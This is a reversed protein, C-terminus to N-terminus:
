QDDDSEIVRASRKKRRPSSGPEDDDSPVIEHYENNSKLSKSTQGEMLIEVDPDEDSLFRIAATELVDDEAPPPMFEDESSLLEEVAEDDIFNADEEDMEDEPNGDAEASYDSAREDESDSAHM